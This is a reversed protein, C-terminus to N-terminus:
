NDKPTVDEQKEHGRFVRLAQKYEALHSECVEIKVETAVVKGEWTAKTSIEAMAPEVCLDCTKITAM